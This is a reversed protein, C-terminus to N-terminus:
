CAAGGSLRTYKNLLQAIIDTGGSTARARFIMGLGAGILVGGFISSLLPDDVLQRHGVPLALLDITGRVHAGARHM